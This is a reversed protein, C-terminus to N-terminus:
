PTEVSPAPIERAFKEFLESSIPDLLGGLNKGAETLAWAFGIFADPIRWERGMYAYVSYSQTKEMIPADNTEKEGKGIAAILPAILAIPIDFVDAQPVVKGYYFNDDVDSKYYYLDIVFHILPIVRRNLSIQPIGVYLIDSDEEIEVGSKKIDRRAKEDLDYRDLSIVPYDCWLLLAPNVRMNIIQLVEQVADKYAEMEDVDTWDIM